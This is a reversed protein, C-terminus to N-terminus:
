HIARELAGADRISPWWRLPSPPGTSLNSCCFIAVMFIRLAPLCRVACFNSYVNSMSLPAFQSTRIYDVCPINRMKERTNILQASMTAREAANYVQRSMIGASHSFFGFAFPRQQLGHRLKHYLNHVKHMLLM